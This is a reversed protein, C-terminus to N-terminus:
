NKEKKCWPAVDRPDHIYILAEVEAPTFEHEVKLYYHLEALGQLEYIAGINEGDLMDAHVKLCEDLREFLLRKADQEM